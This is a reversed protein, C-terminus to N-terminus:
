LEGREEIILESAPKGTVNIPVFDDFAPAAIAQRSAPTTLGARLLNEYYREWAQEEEREGPQSGGILKQLAEETILSKGGVKVLSLTGRKVLKYLTAKSIRLRECAEPITLLRVPTKM